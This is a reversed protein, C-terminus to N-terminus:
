GDEYRSQIQLAPMKGADSKLTEPL